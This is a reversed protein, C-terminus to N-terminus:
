RRNEKIIEAPPHFKITSRDLNAQRGWRAAAYQQALKKILDNDANFHIECGTDRIAGGALRFIITGKTDIDYKFELGSQGPEAERDLVERMKIVALLAQRHKDGLGHAEAIAKKLDNTASAPASAPETDSSGMALVANEPQVITKKSRLIALATEDGQAAKHQLYKTWTTYPLEARVANRRASIDSRLKDLEAQERQKIELRIRQRDHKLMPLQEVAQRRKDWRDCCDAYLHSSDSNIRSLTDKRRGMDAQFLAYLGDREAGMHLPAATYVDVPKVSRLLDAEATKFQGFRAEMEKKSLSRDISSPKARHKGYREQITLGNGSLKLLLGYQLFTRHVDLWGEAKDLQAMIDPKHDLIYSFLSEQGSQIELAKVKASTQGDRRISDAEMGNDVALGYKKEIMRSARSLKPFDYFPSYCKFTRPNVRSYAIHMHWNNTNVHVGCHRQHDTFGLAEAYMREIDALVEKTLTDEDEPRFSVMLHYTKEEEATTNLAQTAEVEILGEVYTDAEGGAYWSHFTKEGQHGGITADAAYLALARYNDNAAERDIRRAIM